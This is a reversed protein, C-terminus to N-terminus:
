HVIFMKYWLCFLFAVILNCFRNFFPCVDFTYRLYISLVDAASRFCDISLFCIQEYVHRKGDVASIHIGKRLQPVIISFCGHLQFTDYNKGTFGKLLMVTVCDLQFWLTVCRYIYCKLYEFLFM